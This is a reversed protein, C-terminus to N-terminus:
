KSFVLNKETKVKDEKYIDEELYKIIYDTSLNETLKDDFMKYSFLDLIKIFKETNIQKEESALLEM